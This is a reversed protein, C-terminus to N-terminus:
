ASSLWYIQELLETLGREQFQPNAPLIDERSLTTIGYAHGYLEEVRTPATSFPPGSMQREDYELTVLLIPPREPLLKILHEVYRKQTDPPLAILAARDYVSRTGALQAPDLQFFDGQLLSVAGSRYRRFVGDSEPHITEGRECFFAEVALTSLEVGLVEHGQKSLWDIDVSKGCLPVFVRGPFGLLPWFKELGPHVESQHFGIEQRRWKDEWFQREDANATTIM